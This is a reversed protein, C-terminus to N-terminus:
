PANKVSDHHGGNPADVHQTDQHDGGGFDHDNHGPRCSDTDIHGRFPDRVIDDHVCSAANVKDPLTVALIVPVAWGARLLARRTVMKGLQGGSEAGARSTAGPPDTQSMQEETSGSKNTEDSSM